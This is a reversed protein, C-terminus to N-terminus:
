TTGHRGSRPIKRGFIKEWSEWTSFAPAAEAYMRRLRRDNKKWKKMAQLFRRTLRWALATNRRYFLHNEAHQDYVIVGREGYTWPWSLHEQYIVKASDAAFAEDGALGHIFNWYICLADKIFSPLQPHLNEAPSPNAAGVQTPTPKQATLPALTTLLKQHRNPTDNFVIQPGLLYDEIALCTVLAEDYRFAKLANWFHYRFRKRCSRAKPAAISSLILDNRLSYYSMWAIQKAEFPKHWVFIGPMQILKAGARTARVGFEADDTRIFFPLPLGHLEIVESPFCCFWWANYTPSSIECIKALNESERCDFDFPPLRKCSGNHFDFVEACAAAQAPRYLDLMHGGVISDDYSHALLKVLRQLIRPEVVIDDDLLLVHSISGPALAEMLGRTFGGAGGHNLQSVVNLIGTDRLGALAPDTDIATSVSEAGQDIVHIRRIDPITELTAALGQLNRLVFPIKNFTCIVIDLEVMRKPPQCTVWEGAHLTFDSSVNTITLYLYGLHQLTTVDLDIDFNTIVRPGSVFVSMITEPNAGGRHMTLTADGSTEIVCNIQALGTYKFWHREFFGNLLSNFSVDARPPIHLGTDDVFLRGLPLNTHSNAKYYLEPQLRENGFIFKQLQLRIEKRSM